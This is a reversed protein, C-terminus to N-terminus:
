LSLPHSCHTIVDGACPDHGVALQPCMVDDLSTVTYRKALCNLDGGSLSSDLAVTGAENQM